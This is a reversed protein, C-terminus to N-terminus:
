INRQETVVFDFISESANNTKINFEIIEDYIVDMKM